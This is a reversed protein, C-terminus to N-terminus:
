STESAAGPLRVKAVTSDDSPLAAASMRETGQRPLATVLDMETLDDNSVLASGSTRETGQRPLATVLGTERDMETLDDNFVTRWPLKDAEPANQTLQPERVIDFLHHVAKVRAEDQKSEPLHSVDFHKKVIFAMVDPHSRLDQFSDDDLYDVKKTLDRFSEDSFPFFTKWQSKVSASADQTAVTRWAGAFLHPFAIARAEGWKDRPLHRVDLYRELIHETVPERSVLDHLADISLADVKKALDLYGERFRDWEPSAAMILLM